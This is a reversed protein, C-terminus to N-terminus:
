RMSARILSALSKLSNRHVGGHAFLRELKELVPQFFRFEPSIPRLQFPEDLLFLPGAQEIAEILDEREAGSAPAARDADTGIAHVEPGQARYNPYLDVPRILREEWFTGDFPMRGSVFRLRVDAIRM